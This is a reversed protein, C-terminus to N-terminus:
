LDPHLTEKPATSRPSDDEGPHPSGESIYPNEADHSDDYEFAVKIQLVIANKYENRM